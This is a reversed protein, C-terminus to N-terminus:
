ARVTLVPCAAGAVVNYATSLPTHGAWGGTPKAGMVILHAPLDRAAALIEQAAPGFRVRFDAPFEAAHNAAMSHKMRQIHVQQLHEIAIHGTARANEVVHLLTLRADFKRALAIAYKGAREASPGFDTVYLIRKFETARPDDEETAPGIMLVPRTAHRFIEEAGSGIFPAPRAGMGRTAAVLLDVDRANILREITRWLPGEEILVSCSVHSAPLAHLANQMELEAVWRLAEKRDVEQINQSIAPSQPVIIHALYIHAQNRAALAVAFRAARHSAESFDTAVLIRSFLMDQWECRRAHLEQMASKEVETLAM